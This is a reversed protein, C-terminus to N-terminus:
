EYLDKNITKSHKINREVYVDFLAERLTKNANRPKRWKENFERMLKNTDNYKAATLKENPKLQIMQMLKEKDETKTNNNDPTIFRNEIKKSIVRSKPRSILNDAHVPTQM